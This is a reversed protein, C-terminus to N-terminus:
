NKSKGNGGKNGNEDSKGPNEPKGQDEDDESEVELDEDDFEDQVLNKAQESEEKLVEAQEKELEALELSELAKQIEEQNGSSLAEKYSNRAEKLNQLTEMYTNKVTLFNEFTERVEENEIKAINEMVRENEHSFEENIVKKNDLFAAKREPDKMLDGLKEENTLGYKERLANLGIAKGNNISEELEEENIDDVVINASMLVDSMAVKKEISNEIDEENDKSAVTFLIYDDDLDELDLFGKQVAENTIFEAAEGMTMGIVSDLDLTKADENLPKVDIVIEDEDLELKVSPNIDIIVTSAYADWNTFLGTSIVILLAAAAAVYKKYNKMNKGRLENIQYLDEDNFYINQGQEIGNKYNIRLFESDSLVVAYNKYVKMVIGNKM